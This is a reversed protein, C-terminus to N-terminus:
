RHESRCNKDSVLQIMVEKLGGRLLGYSVYGKLFMVTCALYGIRKNVPGSVSGSSFIM